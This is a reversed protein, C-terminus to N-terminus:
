TSDFMLHFVVDTTVALADEVRNTSLHKLLVYLFIEFLVIENLNVPIINTENCISCKREDCFLNSKLLREVKDRRDGKCSSAVTQLRTGFVDSRYRVYVINMGHCDMVFPSRTVSSVDKSLDTIFFYRECWGHCLV